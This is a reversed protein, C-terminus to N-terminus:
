RAAIRGEIRVPLLRQAPQLFLLICETVKHLAQFAGAILFLELAEHILTPSGFVLRELFGADDDPNAAIAARISHVGPRAGQAAPNEKIDVAYLDRRSNM